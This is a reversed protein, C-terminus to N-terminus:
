ACLYSTWGDVNERSHSTEQFSSEADFGPYNQVFQSSNTVRCLVAVGIYWM